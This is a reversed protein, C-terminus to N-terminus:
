DPLDAAIRLLRQLVADAMSGEESFNNRLYGFRWGIPDIAELPKRRETRFNPLRMQRNGEFAIIDACQLPVYKGKPGIAFQAQRDPFFAQLGLFVDTAIAGYQNSECYFAIDTHGAAHLRDWANRIAWNLCFGYFVAGVYQKLRTPFEAGAREQMLRVVERKSIVAFDGFIAHDRVVPLIRLVYADRQERSWGKYENKRNHCDVSHHIRIPAKAPLWDLTWASWEAKSAWVAAVVVHESDDHIGSEDVYVQMEVVVVLGDRGALISDSIEYVQAAAQEAPTEISYATASM